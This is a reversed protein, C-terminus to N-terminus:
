EAGSSFHDRLYAYAYGAHFLLGLCLALLFADGTLVTIAPQFRSLLSTDAEMWLFFLVTGLGAMLWRTGMNALDNFYSDTQWRIGAVLMAGVSAGVTLASPMGDVGVLYFILAILNAAGALPVLWYVRERQDQTVNEPNWPNPDYPM